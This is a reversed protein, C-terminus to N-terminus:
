KKLRQLEKIERDNNELVRTKMKLFVADLAQKQKSDLDIWQIGQELQGSASPSYHVIKGSLGKFREHELILECGSCIEGYKFDSLHESSIGVGGQSINSVRYKKQKIIVHVSEKQSVPIRFFKRVLPASEKEESRAQLETSETKM